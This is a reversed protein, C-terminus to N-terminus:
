GCGYNVDPDAAVTEFPIEVREKVICRIEGNEMVAVKGPPCRASQRKEASDSVTLAAFRNGKKQLKPEFSAFSLLAIVGVLTFM